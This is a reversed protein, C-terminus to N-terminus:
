QSDSKKGGASARKRKCATIAWQRTGTCSLRGCVSVESWVGQSAETFQSSCGTQPLLFRTTRMCRKLELTDLIKVKINIM